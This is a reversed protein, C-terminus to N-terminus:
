ENYEQTEYAIVKGIDHKDELWSDVRIADLPIEFTVENPDINDPIDVTFEVMILVTKM